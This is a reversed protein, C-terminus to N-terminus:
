KKQKEIKEQIRREKEEKKKKKNKYWGPPKESFSFPIMGLIGGIILCGSLVFWVRPAKYLIQSMITILLLVIGMLLLGLCVRNNENRFLKKSLLMDIPKAIIIVALMLVFGAQIFNNCMNDLFNTYWSM